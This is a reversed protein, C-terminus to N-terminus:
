LPTNRWVVARSAGLKPPLVGPLLSGADGGGKGRGSPPSVGPRTGTYVAWLFAGCSSVMVMILQVASLVLVVSFFACVKGMPQIRVGIFAVRASYWFWPSVLAIRAWTGYGYVLARLARQAGPGRLLVGKGM